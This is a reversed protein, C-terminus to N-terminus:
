LENKWELESIEWLILMFVINISISQKKKATMEKQRYEIRLNLIFVSGLKALEARWLFIEMILLWSVLSFLSAFKFDFMSLAFIFDIEMRESQIVFEKDLPLRVPLQQRKRVKSKM